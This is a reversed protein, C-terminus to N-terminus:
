KNFLECVKEVQAEGISEPVVDNWKQYYEEITNSNLLEGNKSYTVVSILKMQKNSCSINYLKLKYGNFTKITTNYKTYETEKYYVKFWIKYTKFYISNSIYESKCYIKNGEMDSTVYVWDQSFSLKSILLFAIILTYKMNTNKTIIITKNEGARKHIKIKMKQANCM